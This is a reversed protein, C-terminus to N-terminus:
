PQPRYVTALVEANQQVNFTSARVALAADARSLQATQTAEKRIASAWAGAGASLPIQTVIKSVVTSLDPIHESIFCPLAAAQAEILAIPAGEGALSPFLFADAAGCLIRPVDSRAGLFLVRDEIGLQSVRERYSGELPGEGLFLLYVPRQTDGHDVMSRVIDLSFAQNKMWTLRGVQALVFANSPLGLEQRVENRGYSEWYAELAIGCPLVGWRPDKGYSKGLLDRASAESVGYARSAALRILMRSLRRYLRRVVGDTELSTDNHAHAVRVRVGALKAVFLVIGSFYHVHSHVVDFPGHRRLVHLFKVAFRAPRGLELLEIVQLGAVTARRGHVGVQPSLVLITADFGRPRMEQVLDVLWKEVGGSGMMAAVHLVRTM